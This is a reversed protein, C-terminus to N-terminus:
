VLSELLNSFTVLVVAAGGNNVDFKYEPCAFAMRDRTM